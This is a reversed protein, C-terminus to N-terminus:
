GQSTESTSTLSHHLVGSAIAITVSVAHVFGASSAWSSTSQVWFSLHCYWLSSKEEQFM